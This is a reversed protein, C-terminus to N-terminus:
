KKNLIRLSNLITLLTVGTDAFVAWAMNACGVTALSLITVKVGIAFILNATIIRNTKKAISIFKTIGTLDDNMLVVDSVEIASNSGINGMSIGVDAEMLSPADNIGDGVFIVKHKERTKKLLDYKEEPLLESHYEDLSCINAISKAFTENDGTAMITKINQSKLKAIVEKAGEKLNDDFSIGAILEDDISLFINGKKDTELFSKSGVKIKKKGINYTIGKGEIEKFNTVDKTELTGGYENIIIKGLPHTSFSEGKAIIKLIKEVDYNKDYIDIKEISSSGTTLTGTKDFIIADCKTVMDLFNSGKVLIKSNSSAGIGAFYSLPVSIAIACPCSIVLFSLARYISEEAPVDFIGYLILGTFLALILVIPTYYRALKTVTTERNSKHDTANLTLEFIKYATSDYYCKTVEVEIPDGKNISGSQVNSGEKVPQLISEGTLHSIDLKSSGKKIIGDTPITEGKKVICIDGIKLNESAVKEFGRETVLTAESIKMDLLNEIQKRSKGIAKAELIKGVVYLFSVMFGETFEGLIYAGIASITVLANEDITHSKIIKFIANKITKYLMILYSIAIIIYKINSEKLVTAGIFILLGVILRPLEYDKKSEEMKNEYIRVNPELKLAIKRVEELPTEINTRVTITSTSFNVNAKEINEHKNLADEIKKACNACDLNEIYYKYNKLTNM